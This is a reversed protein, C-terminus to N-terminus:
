SGVGGTADRGQALELVEIRRLIGAKWHRYEARRRESLYDFRDQLMTDAKRIQVAAATSILDDHHASTDVDEADQDADRLIDISRFWDSDLWGRDAVVTLAESIDAAKLGEQWGEWFVADEEETAAVGKKGRTTPPKVEQRASRLAGLMHKRMAHLSSRSADTTMNEGPALQASESVYWYIAALLATLHGNTWDDDTRRRRPAIISELGFIVTPALDPSGSERLTSCLHRVTPRLWPPFSPDLNRATNQSSLTTSTGAKGPTRFAALSLEKGPTGRSPVPRSAPSAPAKSRPTGIGNARGRGSLSTAPLIKDLHTYLRKYIRPPIPPRPEIPPLNLTIKLRRLPEAPPGPASGPHCPHVWRDCALHCCAYLRAVDEEAKLTSARLRSQALLSGALEVLPPPLISNQTPLLSLLAQEVQRSM